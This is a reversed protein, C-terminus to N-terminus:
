DGQTTDRLMRAAEDAALHLDQTEIIREGKVRLIPVEPPEFPLVSVYLMGRDPTDGYVQYDRDWFILDYHSTCVWREPGELSELVTLFELITQMHMALRIKGASLKSDLEDKLGATSSDGQMLRMRRLVELQMAETSPDPQRNTEYEM